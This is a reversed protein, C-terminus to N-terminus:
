GRGRSRRALARAGVMPAMSVAVSVGGVRRQGAGEDEGAIGAPVVGARGEVEQEVLMRRRDGERGVGVVDDRRDGVGAGGPQADGRLRGAVVLAREAAELSM